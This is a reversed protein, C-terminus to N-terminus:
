ADACTCLLITQRAEPLQKVKSGKRWLALRSWASALRVLAEIDGSLTADAETLGRM